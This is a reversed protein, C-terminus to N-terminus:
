VFRFVIFYISIYFHCVCRLAINCVYICLSHPPQSGWKPATQSNVAVEAHTQSTREFCLFSDYTHTHNITIYFMRGCGVVYICLLVGFDIRNSIFWDFLLNRVYKVQNRCFKLVFVFFDWIFERLFFRCNVIHHTSMQTTTRMTRTYRLKRREM